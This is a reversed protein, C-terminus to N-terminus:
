DALYCITGILSASYDCQVFSWGAGSSSSYLRFYTTGHWNHTSVMGANNPWTLSDTMLGGAFQPNGSYQWGTFPLGNINMGGTGNFNNWALYFCATVMRGVKVYFSSQANYSITSGAFSTGSITPPVM